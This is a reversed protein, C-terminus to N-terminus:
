KENYMMEMTQWEGNDTKGKQIDNNMTKWERNDTM